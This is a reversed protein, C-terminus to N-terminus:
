PMELGANVIFDGKVLCRKTGDGATRYWDWHGRFRSAGPALLADVQSATMTAQITLGAPVCAFSQLASERRENPYVKAAWVGTEMGTPVTLFVGVDADPEVVLRWWIAELTLDDVLLTM